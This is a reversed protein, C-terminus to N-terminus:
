GRRVYYDDFYNDTLYTYGRSTLYERIELRKEKEFNHELDIFEIRYKELDIGKLIKLESGETDLSMFDIKTPAGVEDLLSQLTRTKLKIVSGKMAKDAHKGLDGKTGSLMGYSYFDVDLGDQDYLLVNHNDCLPRNEELKKFAYPDPEACIGRWGYSKELEVTNDLALGMHAGINLFVGDKKGEFYSIVDRDQGLQSSSKKLYKGGEGLVGDVLDLKVNTSGVQNYKGMMVPNLAHSKFTKPTKRQLISSALRKKPQTASTVRSLSAELSSCAVVISMLYMLM